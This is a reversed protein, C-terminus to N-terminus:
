PRKVVEAINHAMSVFGSPMRYKDYVDCRRFDRTSKIAPSFM